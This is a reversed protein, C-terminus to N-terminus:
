DLIKNLLTLRHTIPVFVSLYILSLSCLTQFYVWTYTNVQDVAFDGTCDLPFLIFTM